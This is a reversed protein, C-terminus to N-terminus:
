LVIFTTHSTTLNYAFITGSSKCVTTQTTWFYSDRSLFASFKTTTFNLLSSTEATGTQHQTGPSGTQDETYKPTRFFYTRILPFSYYRLLLIPSSSWSLSCLCAFPLNKKGISKEPRFTSRTLFVGGQLVTQTETLHCGLNGMMNPFFMKEKVVMRKKRQKKTEPIHFTRNQYSRGTPVSVKPIMIWFMEGEMCQDKM